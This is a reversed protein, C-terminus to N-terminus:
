QLDGSADEAGPPEPRVVVRAEAVHPLSIRVVESVRRAVADAERLGFGGDVRIEVDIVCTGGLPHVRVPGVSRVDPDSAALDRAAAGIEPPAEDLLVGANVRLPELGMYAVYAGVVLAALPDLWPMGLQAGGIGLFVAAGAFVDARHDRASALITPSNLRRGVRTFARYLGEKVVMTAAAVVLAVPEPAAHVGRLFALGGEVCIFLGTALLLAGILFGAISEINGHGYHHDDDPPKRAALYAGAALATALVDGTSNFGDAILAESGALAGVVLKTVALGANILLAVANVRLGADGRLSSMLRGM